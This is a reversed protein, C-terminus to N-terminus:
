VNNNIAAEVIVNETDKLQKFIRAIYEGMVGLLLGNIGISFTTLVALTAFGGPWKSGITFHAVVYGLSMFLGVLMALIGIISALRLPVVSHHTIADLALGIMKGANFKSRGGARAQRDYNIGIQKFGMASIRGRVYINPDNIKILEEIIKRDILRFDGANKPVSDDSLHFVLWYFLNRLWTLLFGEQRSTRIGYVVKYGKEWMRLFDPILEPPDQIDADLQIAVDGRAFKYGMFISRQYGYNKSFRYVKVRKDSLGLNSLIDFSGDFSNNDTFIYEIDYKNAEMALASNVRDYLKQINIEENFVPVVISILHKSM